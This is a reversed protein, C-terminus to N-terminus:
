SLMAAIELIIGASFMAILIYAWFHSKVSYEPKRQGHKRAKLYILTVFIAICGVGFVGTIDLIKFFANKIHSSAILLAAILPIFCALTTSLANPLRFDFCYMEKLSLAIAIFSTAMTIIGFTIGLLFAKYGLVESLGTIAAETVNSSASVVILAFLAYIIIPILSGIIIVKKISKKNKALEEKLEPIAAIGDFAFLVVGYPIFLNLISFSELREANVYPIAMILFILVIGIFVAVMFLESREIFNLGLYVLATFVAFFAISYIVPSGGLYPSLLADFFEGEKIIYAILAGYLSFAMFLAMIYKGKKGFYAHAYGTLQHTGKTRLSIEGVYLNLMMVALGILVIAAIGTLFGAKSVVYPIGLIGAGIVFGVLTAVACLFHKVM